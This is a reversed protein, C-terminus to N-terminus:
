FAAFAIGKEGRKFINKGTWLYYLFAFVLTACAFYGIFMFADQVKKYKPSGLLVVTIILYALYAVVFFIYKFIRIM